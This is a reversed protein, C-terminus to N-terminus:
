NDGGPIELQRRDGPTDLRKRRVKVLGHARMYRRVTPYSPMPGLSPDARVLERLNDAHLQMSWGTHAEYQSRLAARLKPMMARHQGADKRLRRRLVEIPDKAKLAAYYWRELTSAAFRAPTGKTPHKWEKAALGALLGALEGRGPPAALLPGVISFRLRAWREAADAGDTKAM